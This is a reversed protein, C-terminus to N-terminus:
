FGALPPNPPKMFIAAGTALMAGTVPPPIPPAIALEMAESTAEM